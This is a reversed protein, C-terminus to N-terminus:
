RSPRAEGFVHRLLVITKSRAPEGVRHSAIVVDSLGYLLAAAVGGNGRILRLLVTADGRRPAWGREDFSVRQSARLEHRVRSRALRRSTCSIPRARPFVAVSASTGANAMRGIFVTPLTKAELRSAGREVESRYMASLQQHLLEQSADSLRADSRISSMVEDFVAGLRSV